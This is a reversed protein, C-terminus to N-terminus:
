RVVMRLVLGVWKTLQCEPLCIKLFDNKNAQAIRTNSLAHVGTAACIIENDAVGDRVGLGLSVAVRVGVDVIVGEGTV